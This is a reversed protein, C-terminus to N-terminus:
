IDSKVRLISASYINAKGNSGHASEIQEYVWALKKVHDRMLNATTQARWDTAPAGTQVYDAAGSITAAAERIILLVSQWPSGAPQVSGSTAIQSVNM